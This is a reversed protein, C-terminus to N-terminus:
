HDTILFFHFIKLEEQQDSTVEQKKRTGATLMRLQDTWALSRRTAAVDFDKVFLLDRSKM